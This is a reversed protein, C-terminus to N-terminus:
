RVMYEASLSYSRARKSANVMVLWGADVWDNLLVRAMRDSLGLAQAVDRSTIAEQKLFLAIVM